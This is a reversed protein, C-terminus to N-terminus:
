NIKLLIKTNLSEYIGPSTGALHSFCATRHDQDISHITFILENWVIYYMNIFSSVPYVPTFQSAGGCVWHHNFSAFRNHNHQGNDEQM